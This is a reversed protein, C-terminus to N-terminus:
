ELKLSGLPLAGSRSMSTSLSPPQKCVQQGCPLNQKLALGEAAGRGERHKDLALDVGGALRVIAPGRDLVPDVQQGVVAAHEVLQSSTLEGVGTSTRRTRCHAYVLGM